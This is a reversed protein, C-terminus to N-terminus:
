ENECDLNEIVLIKQGYMDFVTFLGVYYSGNEKNIESYKIREFGCSDDFDRFYYNEESNKSVFDGVVDVKHRGNYYCVHNLSHKCESNEDATDVSDYEIKSNIVEAARKYADEIPESYDFNFDNPFERIARSIVGFYIDPDKVEIHKTKIYYKKNVGRIKERFENFYIKILQFTLVLFIGIWILLLFFLIDLINSIWFDIANNKIEVLWDWM